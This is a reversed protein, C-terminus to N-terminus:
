LLRLNGARLKKMESATPGPCYPTDDPFDPFDTSKGGGLLDIAECIIEPFLEYVIRYNDMLSFGPSTEFERRTVIPGMDIKDTMIHATVGITRDGNIMALLIPWFGRYEPLKSPHFNVCAITPVALIDTDLIQRQISIILDPSTSSVHRVFDPDNVSNIKVFPVRFFACVEKNSFFSRAFSPLFRAIIRIGCDILKLRLANWIGWFQLGTLGRKRNTNKAGDKVEAVLCVDTGKKLLLNFLVKPKFFVDDSILICINVLQAGTGM